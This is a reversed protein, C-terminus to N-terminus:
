GLCLFPRKLLATRIKPVGCPNVGHSALRNGHQFLVSNNKGVGWTEWIVSFALVLKITNANSSGALKWSFVVVLGVAVFAFVGVFGLLQQCAAHM